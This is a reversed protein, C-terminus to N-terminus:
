VKVIEGMGVSDKRALVNSLDLRKAARRMRTVTM